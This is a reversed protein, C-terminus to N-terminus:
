NKICLRIYKNYWLELRLPSFDGWQNKTVYLV